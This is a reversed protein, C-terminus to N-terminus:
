KVMMESVYKDPASFIDCFISESFSEPAPFINVKFFHFATAIHLQSTAHSVHAIQLTWTMPSDWVKKSQKSFM